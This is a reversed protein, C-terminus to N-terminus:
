KVNNKKWEEYSQWNIRNKSENDWRSKPKWNENVISLLDCRCGVHRHVSPAKNVDYIKGDYQGCDSCTKMDLTACYMVKKIDHEQRWYKNAENQVIAIQDTVLRNTNTWNVDFRRGIVSNIENVTTKGNLFKDVEVKMQKAVKNKNNWIRDSYTKGDIKKNIIKKLVNEKVPKLSYNIGISLLYSNSYIKDMAVNDLFDKTFMSEQKYEEKFTENILNFLEQRLKAKDFMSLDLINNNINYQLLTRAIEDLIIQKSVKHIKAIKNIEKDYKEYILATFKEQLDAFLKQYKNMM